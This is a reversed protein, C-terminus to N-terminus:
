ATLGKLRKPLFDYIISYWYFLKDLQGASLAGSNFEKRTDYLVSHSLLVQIIILIQVEIRSAIDNCCYWPKTGDVVWELSTLRLKSSKLIWLHYETGLFWYVVPKQKNLWQHNIMQQITSWNVYKM